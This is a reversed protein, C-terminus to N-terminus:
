AIRRLRQPRLITAGTVALKSGDFSADGTFQGASTNSPVLQYTLTRQQADFFPGLAFPAKSSQDTVPLPSPGAPPRVNKSQTLQVHAIPARESLRHDRPWPHLGAAFKTDRRQRRGSRCHTNRDVSHPLLPRSFVRILNTANASSGSKAPGHSTNLRSRPLGARGPRKRKGRPPM